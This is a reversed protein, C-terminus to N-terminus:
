FYQRNWLHWLTFLLEIHQQPLFIYFKSVETITQKPRNKGLKNRNSVIDIEKVSSVFRKPTRNDSLLAATKAKPTSVNVIPKSTLRTKM